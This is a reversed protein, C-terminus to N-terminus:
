EGLLVPVAEMVGVPVPVRVPVRVGEAVMERPTDGEVVGLVERYGLSLAELLRLGVLVGVGETVGTAAPTVGLLVGEREEEGEATETGRSASVSCSLRGCCSLSGTASAKRCSKTAERPSALAGASCRTSWAAAAPPLRV